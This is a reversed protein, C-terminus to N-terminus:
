AQLIPNKQSHPLGQTHVHHEYTPSSQEPLGDKM